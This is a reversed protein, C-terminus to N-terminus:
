QAQPLVFPTGPPPMQGVVLSCRYINHLTQTSIVDKVSGSSAIEGEHMLVVKDAYRVALNLDHLVAVVGGGAHAFERAIDMVMLQHQIDLSAVPEDLLLWCAMDRYRPQWIQCLVRAFQVRAQEGGSLEQYFRSGYGGLDVRNLAQEPLDAELKHAGHSSLRSLGLAVVERVLFPFSLASSQPLVGRMLAMQWPKLTCIDYANITIKGQYALDGALANLLTTKGSGNPGIIITVEGSQAAFDVAKLAM